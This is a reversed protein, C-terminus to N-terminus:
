KGLPNLQPFKSGFNVRAPRFTQNELYIRADKNIRILFEVDTPFGVVEIIKNLHDTM